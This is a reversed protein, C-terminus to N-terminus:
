KLVNAIETALAIDKETIVNGADHTCTKIQITNYTFTVEPHHDHKEIVPLLEGLKETVASFNALTYTAMLTNDATSWFENHAIFNSITAKIDITNM